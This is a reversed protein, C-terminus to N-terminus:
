RVLAVELGVTEVSDSAHALRVRVPRLLARAAIALPWSRNLVSGIRIVFTLPMLSSKLAGTTTPEQVVHWSVGCAPSWEAGAGRLMPIASGGTPASPRLAEPSAIPSM